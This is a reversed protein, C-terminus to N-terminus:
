KMILLDIETRCCPCNATVGKTHTMICPECFIHGCNTQAINSETEFCIPCDVSEQTLGNIIHIKELGPQETNRRHFIESNFIQTATERNMGDAINGHYHARFSFMNIVEETYQLVSLHRFFYYAWIARGVLRNKAGVPRWGKLRILINLEAVSKSKFWACIDGYMQDEAGTGLYQIAINCKFEATEKLEVARADNCSNVTHGSLKCFSCKRQSM